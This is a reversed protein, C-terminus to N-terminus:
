NLLEDIKSLIKIYTKDIISYPSITNLQMHIPHHINCNKNDTNINQINQIIHTYQFRKINYYINTINKEFTKM